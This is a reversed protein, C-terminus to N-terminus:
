ISVKDSKSTNCIWHALQANARTHSGGKALPIVHDLSPSLHDPYKASQDVPEMCLQCIWGDRDYIESREFQEADDTMKSGRRLDKNAKRQVAREPRLKAALHYARNRCPPSCYLAHSKKAPFSADCQACIKTMEFPIYTARHRDAALTAQREVYAPNSSEFARVRCRESCWKRANRDRPGIEFLDGCGSCPRFGDTTDNARLADTKPAPKCHDCYKRRRGTAGLEVKYEHGCLAVRSDLSHAVINM